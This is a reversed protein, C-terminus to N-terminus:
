SQKGGTTESYLLRPECSRDFRPRARIGDYIGRSTALGVRVDIVSHSLARGFRSIVVFPLLWPFHRSFVRAAGYAAGYAGVVSARERSHQTTTGGRHLGLPECVEHIRLGDRRAACTFDAEDFFLPLDSYRATTPWQGKDLLFAAGAFIRLTFFRLARPTATGIPITASTLLNLRPRAAQPTGDTNLITGATCACGCNENHSLAARIGDELVACDPNTVLVRRNSTLALGATVTPGFGANTQSEFVKVQAPACRQALLGRVAERGAGLWFEKEGPANEIVVVEVVEEIALLSSLADGITNLSAFSVILGSIM